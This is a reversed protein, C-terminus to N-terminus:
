IINLKKLILNMLIYNLYYLNCYFRSPDNINLEQYKEFHFKTNKLDKKICYALGLNYHAM